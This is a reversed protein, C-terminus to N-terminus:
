LIASPFFIASEAVELYNFMPIFWRCSIATSVLALIFLAFDIPVAWGRAMAKERGGNDLLLVCGLLIPIYQFRLGVNVLALEMAIVAATGVLTLVALNGNQRTLGIRVLMLILMVVRAAHDVNQLPDGVQTQDWETGETYFNALGLSEKLFPIGNFLGISLLLGSVTIVVYVGVGFVMAMKKPNSTILPQLAWIALAVVMAKHILCAIVILILAKISRSKDGNAGVYFAVACIICGITSRVSRVIPEMPVALLVFLLLALFAARSTQNNVCADMVLWVLMWYGFFAASAQLLYLDGTNGVCWCWLNWVILNAHDQNLSTFISDLPLGYYYECEQMWRTMDTPSKYEIGHTILAMALGFALSCTVANQRTPKGTFFLISMCIGVAPSVLTVACLVSLTGLADMWAKPFFRYQLITSSASM